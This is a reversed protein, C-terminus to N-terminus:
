RGTGKEARKLTSESVRLRSENRLKEELEDLIKMVTTGLIVHVYEAVSSETGLKRLFEEAESDDGVQVFQFVM